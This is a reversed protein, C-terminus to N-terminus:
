YGKYMEVRMGLDLEYRSETILATSYNNDVRVIRMQAVREFPIQSIDDDDLESLGDKRDYAFFRNGVRVGQDKGKNIFVYHHEGFLSEVRQTDLISGVVTNTAVVPEVRLLQREYPFLVDGRYIEEWSQVIIATHHIDDKGVEVVRVAGIVKYKKALVNDDDDEHNKIFRLIAFVSGKKVDRDTDEELDLYIRDPFAMMNKNEPSHSITGVPGYEDDDSDLYFGGMAISMGETSVEPNDPAPGLVPERLYVVDGPYIWHPNTIHENYAWVVPWVYPTGFYYRSIDFLTDGARVVHYNPRPKDFEAPIQPMLNQKVDLPRPNEEEPTPPKGELNQASVPAASLAAFGLGLAAVGVRVGRAILKLREGAPRDNKRWSRNM